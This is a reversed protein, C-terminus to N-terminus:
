AQPFSTNRSRLSPGRDGRALLLGRGERCAVVLWTLVITNLMRLDRGKGLLNELILATQDPNVKVTSLRREVNHLGGQQEKVITPQSPQYRAILFEM